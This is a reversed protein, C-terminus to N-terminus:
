DAGPWGAGSRPGALPRAPGRRLGRKKVEKVGNLRAQGGRRLVVDGLAVRCTEDAAKEDAARVTALSMDPESELACTWTPLADKAKAEKAAATDGAHASLSLLSLLVIGTTSAGSPHTPPADRARTM